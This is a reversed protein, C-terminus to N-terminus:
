KNKTKKATATAIAMKKDMPMDPDDREIAKAVEERKKLEADTLQSKESLLLYDRMKSIYNAALTAKSMWWSPLDGEPPMQSLAQLLQEANEISVKMKRMASAVDTHGDENLQQEEGGSLANSLTKKDKDTLNAINGMVSALDQSVENTKLPQTIFGTAKLVQTIAFELEEMKSAIDILNELDVDVGLEDLDRILQQIGQTYKSIKRKDGPNPKGLLFRDFIAGNFTNDRRVFDRVMDGLLISSKRNQKALLDMNFESPRDSSVYRPSAPDTDELDGMDVGLNAEQETILSKQPASNIHKRWNEFLLQSQKYSSFKSM